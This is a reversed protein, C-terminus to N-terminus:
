NRIARPNVSRRFNAFLWQVPECCGWTDSSVQIPGLTRPQDEKRQHTAQEHKESSGAFKGTSLDTSDLLDSDVPSSSEKLHPAEQTVVPQFVKVEDSTHHLDSDAPSSDKLPSAEEPQFDKMEDTKKHLDSDVRSSSDKLLPAEEAEVPQLEKVDGGEVPKSPEIASLVEVLPQPEVIGKGLEQEEQALIHEEQKGLAAIEKSHAIELLQELEEQNPEPVGSSFPSDHVEKAVNEEGGQAESLSPTPATKEVESSSDKTPEIIEEESVARVFTYPHEAFSKESTREPTTPEILTAEEAVGADGEVNPEPYPESAASNTAEHGSKHVDPAQPETETSEPVQEDETKLDGTIQPEEEGSQHRILSSLDIANSGSHVDVLDKVNSLDSFLRYKEEEQEDSSAPEITSSAHDEVGSFTEYNDEEQEESSAPEIASSGQYGGEKGDPSSLNAVSGHDDEGRAGVSGVEVYSSEQSDEEHERDSPVVVISSSREEDDSKKPYADSRSGASRSSSSISSRSSKGGMSGSSVSKDDDEKESDSGSMVVDVHPLKQGQKRGSGSSDEAGLHDAEGVEEASSSNGANDGSVTEWEALKDHGRGDGISDQADFDSKAATSTPTGVDFDSVRVWEETQFTQDAPRENGGRSLSLRSSREDGTKPSTGEDSVLSDSVSAKDAFANDLSVRTGPRGMSRRRAARKKPGSPM